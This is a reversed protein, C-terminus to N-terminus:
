PIAPATASGNGLTYRGMFCGEPDGVVDHQSYLHSAKCENKPQRPTSDTGTLVSNLLGLLTNGNPTAPMVQANIPAAQEATGGAWAPAGLGFLLSPVLLVTLKKSMGM